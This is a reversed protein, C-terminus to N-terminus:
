EVIKQTEYWDNAEPLVGLDEIKVWARTKWLDVSVGDIMEEGRESAVAAIVLCTDLAQVAEETKGQEILNLAKKWTNTLKGVKRM